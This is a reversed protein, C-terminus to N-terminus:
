SPSDRFGLQAGFPRVVILVFGAILAGTFCIVQALSLPGIVTNLHEPSRFFETLPRGIGYLLVFWVILTGKKGKNSLVILAAGVIVVVLIEYLQTPHLPVGAPATRETGGEPFVVAWPLNCIAGHCCGNVFCAAKSLIMPLPLTLVVIDLMNRRYRTLFLAGLSAIALYVLPGGWMGPKMYYGPDFYNLFEFRSNMIDYLIRAGTNMSWIYCLGLAIGFRIPINRRHCLWIAVSMHAVMGLTYLIAYALIGNSDRLM